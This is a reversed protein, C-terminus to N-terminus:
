SGARPSERKQSGDGEGFAVQRVEALLAPISFPKTLLNAAGMARLRLREQVPDAAHASMVLIPIQKTERDRKLRNLAEYGDMGPMRLDLLILGPQERRAVALTEYGDVAWLTEYGHRQLLESLMQATDDSDEAILVKGKHRLAAAVSQLLDSEEVPKVVYDVAGLQFGHEEDQIVSLVIVPIDVTEPRSKLERLVDFGHRDPLLIDLTILDPQQEIAKAIAQEGTAATIVQYGEASLHHRLLAVIDREDDVVLIKRAGRPLDELLAAPLEQAAAPLVITFTSGVNPESSVWVRGGHLEVLQKSIALGLGTGGRGEMVPTDARWFRDFIRSQDEAAIGIGSDAVDLRVADDLPTLSIRIWGEDTFKCANSVLNNVVQILRARDGMIEAPRDPLDVILRLGKGEIQEGLSEGVENIIQCFDTLEMKLRVRGTEMRSIDLLDNILATLRDANNKIIGLFREQQANLPGVAEAYMLDAYGKISTLPTRLEHSVTSVFENKARDAEVERTIDRLATVVGLSEGTETLVPSMHASIVKSESVLTTEMVQGASMSSSTSLMEQAALADERGQEAFAYFLRRVDSGLVHALDANLIEQAAANFVIVRQRTDSVIVGDAISQLIGQSKSREEQETRLLLGLREASDVVYNYLEVNGLTQAVQRASAIVLKFQSENFVGPRGDAILLVGHVDDSLILPAAILSRTLPKKDAFTVWREDQLVDQILVPQRHQVVWGAVGVGVRFRTPKGGPPILSRGGLRARYTLAETERDLLMISGHSAGVAQSVLKLTEELVHDLDLSASLERGIAYLTEIREKEAALERTRAAVREELSRNLARIEEYLGANQIATAAQHVISEVLSVESPDFRAEQGERGLSVVGIPIEQVALPVVLAVDSELSDLLGTTAAQPGSGTQWRELIEAVGSAFVRNLPNEDFLSVAREDAEESGWGAVIRLSGVDSLWLACHRTQLTEGLKEVLTSFTREEDLSANLAQSISYVSRLHFQARDAEERTGDLQGKLHDIRQASRQLSTAAVREGGSVLSEVASDLAEDVSSWLALAQSADRSQGLVKALAARLALIAKLARGPEPWARRVTVALLASATFADGVCAEIWAGLVAPDAQALGRGRLGVQWQALVDRQNEQLWVKSDALGM